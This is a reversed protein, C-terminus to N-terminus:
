HLAITEVSRLQDRIFRNAHAALDAAITRIAAELDLADPVDLRGDIWGAGDLTSRDAAITIWRRTTPDVIRDPEYRALAVLALRHVARGTLKGALLAAQRDLFAAAEDGLDGLGIDAGLGTVRAGTLRQGLDPPFARRLDARRPEVQTLRRGQLVRELGRVTTEVEPLEPM